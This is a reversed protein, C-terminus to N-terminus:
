FCDTEGEAPPNMNNMAISAYKTEPLQVSCKGNVKRLGELFEIVLENAQQKISLLDLVSAEPQSKYFRDHFLTGYRGLKACFKSALIFVM